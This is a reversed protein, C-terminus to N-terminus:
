RRLAGVLREMDRVLAVPDGRYAGHVGANVATFVDAGRRDLEALRRLVDRGRDQNDYLALAATQYLTRAEVLSREVAAHPAGASLRRARVVEHCAAELASRCFGAVVVARAEAPLEDTRALARADDFYRSVPDECKRVEVVSGERRVVEWITAQLQLRRVAEPLRDDHTFVIVQRTDAVQSLVRALGDVKSPDMAQVPDDIMVFRFPSEATTARPLFLALGLAHLEGQSMISLAAGAVGDVTVDLGVHRRTAVGELRIPGLDVNSEQRLSQWVQASVAAFPVLRADRIEQGVQRLWAIAKRLDALTTAAAQSARATTIWAAIATAVPQWADSRRRLSAAASSRLREASEVLEGYSAVGQEILDEPDGTVLQWWRGWAGYVSAPDIAEDPGFELLPPTPQILNRLLRLAADQDGQATALDAARARQRDLELRAQEAWEADLMRGACVPCPEGPHDGYHELAVELLMAMRRADAAPTVAAHNLRQHAEALEAIAVAVDPTAPVDLAAARRLAVLVVTEELDEGVALQEVRDLDWVRGALVTRVAAARQDAHGSLQELLAPLDQRARKGVSEVQGRADTLRKEVTILLDLGLIAQLADYMDSPRGELLGGLESYSLFPRYLEIARGWGADAISMRPKGRMQAYDQSEELGADDAWERVVTTTGAHGDAAVEVVIRADGPCHCNRWGERWVATRGSWRKNDGTLVLEAAEAFSSKGSGNRGSVLTLGPGAQLRLCALPGIGRFGAVCISRLYLSVPEPPELKPAATTAARYDEGGAVDALLDEGLIAATVLDAASPALGSQGLQDLLLEEISDQGTPRENM